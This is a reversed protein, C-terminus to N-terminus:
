RDIGIKELCNALNFVLFCFIVRVQSSSHHRNGMSGGWNEAGPHTRDEQTEDGPTDFSSAGPRQISESGDANASALNSYPNFTGSNGTSDGLGYGGPSTFSDLAPTPQSYKHGLSEVSGHKAVVGNDDQRSKRRGLTNRLSSFIGQKSRKVYNSPVYGTAGQANMVRWWHQTDDLLTLREGKQIGLEHIDTPKYDFKVIVLDTSKATM